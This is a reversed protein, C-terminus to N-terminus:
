FNDFKFLKDVMEFITHPYKGVINVNTAILKLRNRVHVNKVHLKLNEEKHSKYECQGCLNM